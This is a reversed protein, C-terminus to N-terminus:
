AGQLEFVLEEYTKGMGKLADLLMKFAAEMGANGGLREEEERMKRYLPEVAAIARRKPCRRFSFYGIVKGEVVEPIVQAFVWYHAGDHALNKVFAFIERGAQLEQWLLKFVARPMDPHRIINHPAGYLEDEAYASYEVFIDNCYTIVGRLDTKSIIVDEPKMVREVGSPKVKSMMM